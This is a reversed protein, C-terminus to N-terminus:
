GLTEKLGSESGTLLSQRGATRRKRLAKAESIESNAEMRDEQQSQELKKQSASPEFPKVKPKKFMGGM